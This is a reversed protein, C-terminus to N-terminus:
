KNITEIGMFEESIIRRREIYNHINGISNNTLNYGNSEFWKIMREFHTSGKTNDFTKAWVNMILSKSITKKM